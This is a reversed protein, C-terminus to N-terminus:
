LEDKLLGDEEEQDKAATLDEASLDENKKRVAVEDVHEKAQQWFVVGYAVFMVLFLMLNLQTIAGVALFYYFCALGAIIFAM